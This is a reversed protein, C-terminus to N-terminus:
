IQFQLVLIIVLRPGESVWYYVKHNYGFRHLINLHINHINQHINQINKHICCCICVLLQTGYERLVSDGLSLHSGITSGM